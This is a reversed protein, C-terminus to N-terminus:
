NLSGNSLVKVLTQKNSLRNENKGLQRQFNTADRYVMRRQLATKNVSSKNLYVNKVLTSLGWPEFDGNFAFIGVLRKRMAMELLKVKKTLLIAESEGSVSM